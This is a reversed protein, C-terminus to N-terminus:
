AKLETYRWWHWARTLFFGDRADSLHGSAENAKTDVVGLTATAAVTLPAVAKAKDGAWVNVWILGGVVLVIVILGIWKSSKM